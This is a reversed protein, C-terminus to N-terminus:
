FPWYWDRDGSDDRDPQASEAPRTPKGGGDGAATADLEPPTLGELDAAPRAEAANTGSAAEGTSEGSADEEDPKDAAPAQPRKAETDRRESWFPWWWPDEDPTAANAETMLAEPSPDAGDDGFPWAWRMFTRGWGGDGAEPDIGAAEALELMQRAVDKRGRLYESLKETEAPAAPDIRTPVGDLPRAPRYTYLLFGDGVPSLIKRMGDDWRMFLDQGSMAWDGKLSRDRSTELGGFRGIQIREFREDGLRVLWNGRYFQRAEKRSAFAVGGTRVEREERYEALWADPVTDADVRIASRFDTTDAEIVEGAAIRKYAFGRENERVISYHGTDWAIHLESGQKAWSGRLGRAGQPGSGRTSAASRDPEVFVYFSDAGSGVKWTGFFGRAQDRDSSAEDTQRPPKALQGLIEKPVQQAQTTYVERGQPNTYTIGFGLADRELRHSGGDEWRITATTEDGTWSGPYVSRDTNQGWFYSAQNNRKLLIILTEDGPTEIQWTGRFLDTGADEASGRHMPFVAVLSLPLLLLLVRSLPLRRCARRDTARLGTRFPFMM